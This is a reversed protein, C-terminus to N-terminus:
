PTTYVVNLYFGGCTFNARTGSDATGTPELRFLETRTNAAIDASLDAFVNATPQAVASSAFVGFTDLVAASLVTKDIAQYAVRKLVVQHNTYFAGTAAVQTASFTASELTIASASGMVSTDFPVFVYYTGGSAAGSWIEVFVPDLGPCMQPGDGVAHGYDSYAASTGSAISQTIRRLTTFSSSFASTLGNGALDTAAAGVSVTYKTAPTGAPTSGTAYAFATKPTITLVKGAADWATNLESAAFGGVQLAQTTASSNMVESFTIKIQANSKVGTALNAPSISVITPATTDGTGGSGGSGGSAKGGTGASGSGGKGASGSGGKGASGGMGGSASGGTSSGGVSDEAGGEGGENSQGADGAGNAGSDGKGVRGGSHGGSSAEAVSTKGGGDGTGAAGGSGGAGDRFQREPSSCALLIGGVVLGLNLARM